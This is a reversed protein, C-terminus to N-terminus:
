YGMRWTDIFKIQLSPIPWDLQIIQAFVQNIHRSSPTKQYTAIYSISSLKRLFKRGSRYFQYLDTITWTMKTELVVKAQKWESLVTGSKISLNVLHTVCDAIVVTSEETSSKLVPIGVFLKNM